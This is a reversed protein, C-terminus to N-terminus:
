QISAGLDFAKQLFGEQELDFGARSTGAILLTGKNLWGLRKGFVNEFFSLPAQAVSPDSDGAVLLLGMEKGTENKPFRGMTYLAYLRDIFAKMQATIHWFYIPTAFLILDAKEIQPYVEEMGDKQVCYGQKSCQMCHICGGVRHQALSFKYVTHGAQQAGQVFADAARDTNKGTRPSGTGVVIHKAM